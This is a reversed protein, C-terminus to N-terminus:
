QYSPKIEFVAGPDVQDSTLGKVRKLNTMFNCSKEFIYIRFKHKDIFDLRKIFKDGLLSQDM